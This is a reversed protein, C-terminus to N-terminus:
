SAPELRAGQWRRWSLCNPPIMSSWPRGRHGQLLATDAVLDPGGRGAPHESPHQGWPRGPVWTRRNSDSLPSSLLFSVGLVQELSQGTGPDGGRVPAQSERGIDPRRGRCRMLEVLTTQLKDGLTELESNGIM